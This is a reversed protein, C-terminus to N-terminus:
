ITMTFSKSRVALWRMMLCLSNASVAAAHSLFAARGRYDRCRLLVSSASRASLRNAMVCGASGGGVVIYDFSMHPSGDAMLM